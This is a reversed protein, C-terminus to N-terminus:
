GFHKYLTYHIIKTTSSDWLFERVISDFEKWSTEDPSPIVSFLYSFSAGGFNKIIVNNGYLSLKRKTCRNFTNIMEILKPTYNLERLLTDNSSLPITIGLIHIKNTVWQLDPFKHKLQGQVVHRTKGICAKKNKPSNM